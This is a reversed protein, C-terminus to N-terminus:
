VAAHELVIAALEPHISIRGAIALPELNGEGDAPQGGIRFDRRIPIIGAAIIRFRALVFRPESAEEVPWGDRPINWESSIPHEEGPASIYLKHLKANASTPGPAIPRPADELVMDSWVRMAVIPREGVNRVALRWNLLIRAPGLSLRAPAFELELAAPEEAFTESDEM